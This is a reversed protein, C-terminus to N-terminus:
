VRERCSARGIQNFTIESEKFKRAQPTAEVPTTSTPQPNEIVQIFTYDPGVILEAPNGQQSIIEFLEHNLKERLSNLWTVHQEPNEPISISSKELEKLVELPDIAARSEPNQGPAYFSQIAQFLAVAEPNGSQSYHDALLQIDKLSFIKGAM